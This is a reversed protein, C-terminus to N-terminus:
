HEKYLIHVAIREDSNEDFFNQHHSYSQKHVLSYLGSATLVQTYDQKFSFVGPRHHYPRTHRVRPDFDTIVLFGGNRLVRDAEALAPLLKQRDILYLCFGFYVLDFCASDYPLRDATGVQLNINKGTLRQNGDRVAQASPDVGEGTCNLKQCIQELKVGNSCGIELARSIKSEFPQLTHCLSDIEFFIPSATREATGDLAAKNRQYWNDAEGTLFIDSQSM